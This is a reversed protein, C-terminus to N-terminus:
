GDQLMRGVPQRLQSVVFDSLTFIYPLDKVRMFRQGDAAPKGLEFIFRFQSGEIGVTFRDQPFGYRAEDSGNPDAPGVIDAVEIGVISTAMSDGAYAMAPLEQPETMFWTTSEGDQSVDAQERRELRWSEGTQFDKREIWTVRDIGVDKMLSVECWGVPNVAPLVADGSLYVRDSRADRMYFELVPKDGGQIDQQRVSGAIWDVLIRNDESFVQVRRGQGDAVGYVAHKDPNVSVVDSTQIAALNDLMKTLRTYDLPFNKEEVMWGRGIQRDEQAILRLTSRDEGDLIVIRAISDIQDPLQPYLAGIRASTRAHADGQWPQTIGLYLSWAVAAVLFLKWNRASM